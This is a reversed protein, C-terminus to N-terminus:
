VKEIAYVVNHLGRATSVVKYDNETDTSGDAKIVPKVDIWLVTNEDIPLDMNCTNMTRSFQVDTGFPQEESDGKGASISIKLKIPNGRGVTYDGTEIPTDGDYLIDGNEDTEYVPVKQNYLAYYITKQNARASRM